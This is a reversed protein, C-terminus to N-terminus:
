RLSTWLLFSCVVRTIVGTTFLFLFGIVWYYVVSSMKAHATVRVNYHQRLVLLPGVELPARNTEAVAGGNWGLFASATFLGYAVGVWYLADVFLLSLVEELAFDWSISGRGCTFCAMEKVVILLWGGTLIRMRLM